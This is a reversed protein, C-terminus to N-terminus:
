FTLLNRELAEISNNDKGCNEAFEMEAALLMSSSLPNTSIARPVSKFVPMEGRLEPYSAFFDTSVTWCRIDEARQLFEEAFAYTNNSADFTYLDHPSHPWLFQFHARLHLLAADNCYKDPWVLLHERFGPWVYYEVHPLHHIFKQSPRNSIM